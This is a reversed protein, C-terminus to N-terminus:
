EASSEAPHPLRASHSRVTRSRPSEHRCLHESEPGIRLLRHINFPKGVLEQLAHERFGICVSLEDLINEELPGAFLQHFCSFQVCGVPNGKARRGSTNSNVAVTAIGGFRYPCQIQDNEVEM